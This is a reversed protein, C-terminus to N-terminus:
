WPMRQARVEEQLLAQHIAMGAQAGEAAAVIVLQAEKSADGAVYLGPVNTTELKGTDVAGKENFRCGLQAALDSRQRQTTCVFLARRDAPRGQAFIVRQLYGDRGELRVVRETRVAVGLRGLRELEPETIDSSKDTCLLVDSSWTLLGLAVVVAAENKGYVAIPQDRWEWADCYPCHHVSTGYLSELGEIEPLEDRVGTALLLKRTMLQAGDACVVRFGEGNRSVGTVEVQCLDVTDYGTLEERALRLFEAPDLGDRTLYGHIARARANRPEGTDCVSVRRRCRGLMLAASLGAPGGGVVVCDLIM